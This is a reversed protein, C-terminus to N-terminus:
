KKLSIQMQEKFQIMKLLIVKKHYKMRESSLGQIVCLSILKCVKITYQIKMNDMEM